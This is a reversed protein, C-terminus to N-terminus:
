NICVDQITRLLWPSAHVSISTSAMTRLHISGKRREGFAEFWLWQTLSPVPVGQRLCFNSFVSTVSQFIAPSPIYNGGM